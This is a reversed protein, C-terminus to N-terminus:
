GKCKEGFIIIYGVWILLFICISFFHLIELFQNSKSTNKKTVMNCFIYRQLVSFFNGPPPSTKRDEGASPTCGLLEQLIKYTAQMKQTLKLQTNKKNADKKELNWTANGRLALLHQKSRKNFEEAGLFFAPTKWWTDSFQWELLKCRDQTTSGELSRKLEFSGGPNPDSGGVRPLAGTDPDPKEASPM